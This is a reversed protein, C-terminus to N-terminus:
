SGGTKPPCAVATWAGRITTSGCYTKGQSQPNNLYGLISACTEDAAPEVDCTGVYRTNTFCCHPTAAVAVIAPSSGRDGADDRSASGFPTALVLGAAVTFVVTGPVPM